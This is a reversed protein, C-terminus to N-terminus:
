FRGYVERKIPKLSYGLSAAIGHVAKEDMTDGSRLHFTAEEKEVRSCLVM